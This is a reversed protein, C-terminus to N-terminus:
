LDSVSEVLVVADLGEVDTSSFSDSTDASAIADNLKVFRRSPRGDM